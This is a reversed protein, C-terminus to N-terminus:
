LSFHDVISFPKKFLFGQAYDAGCEKAIDLQETTEVWEIITKAKYERATELLRCMNSLASPNNKTAGHFFKGDIKVWEPAIAEMRWVSDLGPSGADDISLEARFEERIMLLRRAASEHDSAAGDMDETWELILRKKQESMKMAISRIVAGIDRHNLLRSSVNIAVPWQQSMPVYHSLALYVQLWETPASPLPKHDLLWECSDSIGTRLNLIPEIRFAIDTLDMSPHIPPAVM